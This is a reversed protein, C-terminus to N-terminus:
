GSIVGTFQLCVEIFYRGVQCICTGPKELSRVHFTVILDQDIVEFYAGSIFMFHNFSNMCIFTEVYSMMQCPICTLVNKNFISSRNETNNGSHMVDCV